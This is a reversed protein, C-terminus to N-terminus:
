DGVFPSINPCEALSKLLEIERDNLTKPMYLLIEVEMPGGAIGKNNLRLRSGIEMGKPINIKLKGDLCPIVLSGGIVLEPYGLWVKHVIVNGERTFDKHRLEKIFIILDGRLGEGHLPKEGKDKVTLRTGETVGMPINVMIKGQLLTVEKYCGKAIEELTLNVMVNVDKGKNENARGFVDNGWNDYYSKNFMNFVDDESFKMDSSKFDFPNGGYTSRKPENDRDYKSRSADDSLTEYAQNVERFRIEANADNPNVDPHCEKALKRYAKKIEEKTATSELGLISYPSKSNM